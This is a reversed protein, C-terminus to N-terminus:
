QKTVNEYRIRVSPSLAYHIQVYAVADVLPHGSCSANRVEVVV